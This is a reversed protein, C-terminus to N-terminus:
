LFSTLICLNGVTIKCVVIIEAGCRGQALRDIATRFAAEASPRPLVFPDKSPCSNGNYGCDDYEADKKQLM